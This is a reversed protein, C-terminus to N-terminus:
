AAGLWGQLSWLRRHAGAGPGGRGCGQLGGGGQLGMGQAVQRQGEESQEGLMGPRARGWPRQESTGETRVGEWGQSACGRVPGRCGDRGKEAGSMQGPGTVRRRENNVEAYGRVCVRSRVRRM